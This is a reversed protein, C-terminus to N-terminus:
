SHDVIDLALQREHAEDRAHRVLYRLLHLKKTDREQRRRLIELYRAVGESMMDRAFGDESGVEKSIWVKTKNNLQSSHSEIALAKLIPLRQAVTLNFECGLFWM